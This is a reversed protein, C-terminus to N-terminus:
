ISSWEGDPTTFHVAEAQANKLNISLSNDDGFNINLIEEEVFDTNVVKKAILSCLGNEYERNDFQIKGDASYCCALRLM